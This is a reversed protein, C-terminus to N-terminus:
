NVVFLKETEVTLSFSSTCFFPNLLPFLLAFNGTHVFGPEYLFLKSPLHKMAVKELWFFFFCVRETKSSGMTMFDNSSIINMTM